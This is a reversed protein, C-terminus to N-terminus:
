AKIYAAVAQAWVHRDTATCQPFAGPPLPPNGADGAPPLVGDREQWWHPAAVSGQYCYILHLPTQEDLNTLQHWQDGPIYVAAPTELTEAESGVCMQARGSLLLYVEHQRDPHNHWPVQGGPASLISLGATYGATGLPSGGNTISRGWRCAPFSIGEMRSLDASAAGGPEPAQPSALYLFELAEEGECRIEMEGGAPIAHAVLPQIGLAAEGRSASGHGSIGYVVQELADAAPVLRAVGRGSVRCLRIHFGALPSLSGPGAILLEQVGPGPAPSLDLKLL